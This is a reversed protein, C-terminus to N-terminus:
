KFKVNGGVYCDGAGNTDVIDEKKVARIPYETVKGGPSLFPFCTKFNHQWGQQVNLELIGIYM